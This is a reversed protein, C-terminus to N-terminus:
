SYLDWKPVQDRSLEFGGKRARKAASKQARLVQRQQRKTLTAKYNIAMYFILLQWFLIGFNSEGFIGFETFSNIIIPIFVAFFIYKKFKYVTKLAGQVTVIVQLLVLTLGTFGLNMLVQIFTNHTMKGAYTHVGKFTEGYAIRMFGFGFWPEKVIGENLLATWFPLRGTMSMVEGVDGEKVFIKQFVIPSALVIGVLIAPRLFKRKSRFSVYMFLLALSIMSSRSGTLILAYLCAGLIIANLVIKEKYLFCVMAGAIGVVCLMGLENPNMFFGGLRAVEGGHTMRFFEDPAAHRGIIFVLIIWGVARALMNFLHPTTAPYYARMLTVCLAFYWVFIISEGTMVLQLISVPFSSTWLLSAFALGIYTLYGVVSLTSHWQFNPVHGKNKLWRYLYVAGVSMMVRLGVKVVRTIAVNESVTFYGAIKLTLMTLLIFNVWRLTKAPLLGYQPLDQSTIPEM